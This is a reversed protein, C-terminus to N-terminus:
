HRSRFELIDIMSGESRMTPQREDEKMKYSRGDCLLDTDRALGKGNHHIANVTWRIGSLFRWFHM